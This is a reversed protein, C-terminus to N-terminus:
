GAAATSFGSAARRMGPREQRAFWVALGVGVGIMGVGAIWCGFAYETSLTELSVSTQGQELLRAVNAEHVQGAVVPALILVTGLTILLAVATTKM